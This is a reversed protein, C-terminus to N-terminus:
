PSKADKTVASYPTINICLICLNGTLLPKHLLNHRLKGLIGLVLFCVIICNVAATLYDQNYCIPVYWTSFV